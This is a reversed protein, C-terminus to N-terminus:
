LIDNPFNTYIFNKNKLSQVLNMLARTVEAVGFQDFKV